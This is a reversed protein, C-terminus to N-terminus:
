DGCGACRWVSVLGLSTSCTISGGNLIAWSRGLDACFRHINHLKVALTGSPQCACVYLRTKRRMMVMGEICALAAVQFDVCEMGCKLVAQWTCSHIICATSCVMGFQLISQTGWALAPPTSSCGLRLVIRCISAGVTGRMQWCAHQGGALWSATRCHFCGGGCAAASAALQQRLATSHGQQQVLLVLVSVVSCQVLFAVARVPLQQM